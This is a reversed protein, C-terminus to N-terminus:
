LFNLQGKMLDLFKDWPVVDVHKVKRDKSNFNWSEVHVGEPSFWVHAFDQGELPLHWKEPISEGDPVHHRFQVISGNM